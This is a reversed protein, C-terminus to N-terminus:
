RVGGHTTGRVLSSSGTDSRRANRVTGPSRASNRRPM